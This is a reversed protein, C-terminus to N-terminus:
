FIFTSGKCAFFVCEMSLFCISIRYIALCHSLAHMHTFTHTREHTRILSLALDCLQQHTWQHLASVFQERQLCLWILCLTHNRDSHQKAKFGLPQCRVVCGYPWVWVHVRVCGRVCATGHLQILASSSRWSQSSKPDKADLLWLPTEVFWRKTDPPQPEKLICGRIGKLM